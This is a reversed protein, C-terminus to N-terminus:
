EIEVAIFFEVEESASFPGIADFPIRLLMSNSSENDFIGIERITRGTISANSGQLVVKFDIVNEDSKKPTATIGYSGGSGTLLPVDLTLQSPSTSNGGSGVNARIFEGVIYTAILSKGKDTIM